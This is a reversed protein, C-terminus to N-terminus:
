LSKIADKVYDANTATEEALFQIDEETPQTVQYTTMAQKILSKRM